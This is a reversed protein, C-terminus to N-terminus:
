LQNNFFCEHHINSPNFGNSTLIFSCDEIMDNNGCLYFNTDVDYQKIDRLLEDTVRCRNGYINTEGSVCIRLNCQSLLYPLYYEIDKLKRVGIYMNKPKICNSRISAMFPSIGTGTSIFVSNDKSGPTFWGYPKSVKVCDGDKLNYLYNSVYGNPIKKIILSIHNDNISSAISYPRSTLGDSGYVALCNGVSYKYDSKELFLEFVSDSRIVKFLYRLKTM